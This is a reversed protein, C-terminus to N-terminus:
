VVGSYADRLVPARIRNSNLCHDFTESLAVLTATGSSHTRLAGTKGVASAPIAADLAREGDIHLRCRRTSKEMVAVRLAVLRNYRTYCQSENM